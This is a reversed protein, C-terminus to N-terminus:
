IVQFSVNAISHIIALIMADVFLDDQFADFFQLMPLISDNAFEEGIKFM